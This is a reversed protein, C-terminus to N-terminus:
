LELEQFITIESNVMINKVLIVLSFHEKDMCREMKFNDKMGIRASISKEVVLREVMLLNDRMAFLIIIGLKLVKAMICIMKGSVRTCQEMLILLLAKVMLEEKLIIVKISIEM